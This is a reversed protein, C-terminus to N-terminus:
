IRFPVGLENCKDVLGNKFKRYADRYANYQMNCRHLVSIFVKAREFKDKLTTVSSPLERNRKVAEYEDAYARMTSGALSIVRNLISHTALFAKDLIRGADRLAARTKRDSPDIVINGIQDVSVFSIGNSNITFGNAQPMDPRIGSKVAIDVIQTMIDVQASGTNNDKVLLGFYKGNGVGLPDSQKVIGDLLVALASQYREVVQMDPVTVTVDITTEPNAAKFKDLAEYAKDIVFSEAKPAKWFDLVKRIGTMLLEFAKKLFEWAKALWVKATDWIANECAERRTEDTGFFKPMELNTLAVFRNGENVMDFWADSYGETALTKSCLQLDNVVSLMGAINENVSSLEDSLDVLRHAIALKRLTQAQESMGELASTVTLTM